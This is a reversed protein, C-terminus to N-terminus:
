SRELVYKLFSDYNEWKSIANFIIIAKKPFYRWIYYLSKLRIPYWFEVIFCEELFLYLKNDKKSLQVIYKICDKKKGINLFEDKKCYFLEKLIFIGTNTDIQENIIADFIDKPSNKWDEPPIQNIEIDELLTLFSREKDM